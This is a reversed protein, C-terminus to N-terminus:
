EAESAPSPSIPIALGVVAGFIGGAVVALTNQTLAAVALAAASGATAAVLDRRESILGVALGAMAAPFVM